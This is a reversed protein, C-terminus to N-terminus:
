APQAPTVRLPMGDAPWLTMGARPVPPKKGAYALDTRRAVAALILVSEMMAFAAGM